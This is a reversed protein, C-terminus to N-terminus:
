GRPGRARRQRTYPPSPSRRNRSRRWPSWLEVRHYPSPGYNWTRSRLIWVSLKLREIKNGTITMGKAKAKVGKIGKAKAKVGKIGKAKVKVEEIVKARAKVGEIVMVRVRAKVGEIVMVMAMVMGNARVRVGETVKVKVM